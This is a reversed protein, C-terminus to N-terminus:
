SFRPLVGTPLPEVTSEDDITIPTDIRTGARLICRESGPARTALGHGHQLKSTM